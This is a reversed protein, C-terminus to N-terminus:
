VLEANPFQGKNAGFTITNSCRGPVLKFHYITNQSPIIKKGEKAFVAAAVKLAFPKDDLGPNFKIAM